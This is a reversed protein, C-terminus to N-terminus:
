YATDRAHRWSHPSFAGEGVMLAVGCLQANQQTTMRPLPAGAPTPMLVIHTDIGMVADLVKGAITM